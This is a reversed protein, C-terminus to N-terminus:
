LEKVLSHSIKWVDGAGLTLILDGKASEKRLYDLTEEQTPLYLVRPQGAERLAQVILGATVGPLPHEGAAYIDNVIVIDAQRFARGFDRYLFKTRTYRHPQFVAVIRRAGVQSAASLTARIETPHHAYDDVVWINNEGHLVQFRREVGRFSALSERIKAWEVGLNTAVAAAALANLVNHRGPVNLELWGLERGGSNVRARSGLGNFRIETAELDGGVELGYTVVRCPLDLALRRLNPDDACLVAFGDPKTQRLYAEFAEIINEVSGYHDLHDDEINTAVAVWPRLYLFSADSEDAETVLYDSKGLYANGGIEPVNGGVLVTPDFGARLLTLAIMATVTTKGHAGAVTIGRYPQMFEALLEGRKIVPLGRQRAATVEPNDPPIASSVVVRRVGPSLNEVAHGTNVTAGLSALRQMVGNEKLDSGSVRYGKGLLVQALASMGVGGIGVFHLWEKEGLDKMEKGDPTGVGAVISVQM